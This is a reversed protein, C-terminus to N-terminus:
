NRSFAAANSALSCRRSALSSRARRMGGATATAGGDGDSDGGNSGSDVATTPSPATASAAAAASTPSVASRRTAAASSAACPARSLSAAAAAACSCRSARADTKSSWAAALTSPRRREAAETEGVPERADVEATWEGCYEDGSARVATSFPSLSSSSSSSSSGVASTSAGDDAPPEASVRARSCSLDCSALSARACVASPLFFAFSARALLFHRRTLRHEGVRRTFRRLQLCSSALCTTAM